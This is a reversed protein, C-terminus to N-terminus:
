NGFALWSASATVGGSNVVAGSASKSILFVDPLPGGDGTLVVGLCATPFSFSISTDVGATLSVTGGAFLM